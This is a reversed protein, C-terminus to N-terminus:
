KKEQYINPHSIKLIDFSTYKAEDREDLLDRIVESFSKKGKLHKLRQYIKEDINVSKSPM